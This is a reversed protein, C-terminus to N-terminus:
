KDFQSNVLNKQSEQTETGTPDGLYEYPIVPLGNHWMRISLTREGKSDADPAMAIIQGSSVMDGEAVLPSGLGSYRSTFGRSHQVVVVYGHESPSYYAAMVTGDAASQIPSSDFLLVIGTESNRSTTRFIGNDSVPSFLIGDAALPALVSINFREREEMAKVFKRERATHPMLSDPTLENLVSSVSASDGPQRDIDSIRLFNDIYAQNQEYISRISDLRMLNDESAARESQKMYGPLLSKLPSLMIIGGAIILMVLFLGVAVPIVGRRSISFDAISTLHAEDEIRIRYRKKSKM